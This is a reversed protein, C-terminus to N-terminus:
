ENPRMKFFKFWKMRNLGCSDNSDNVIQVSVDTRDTSVQNNLFSTGQVLLAGAATHYLAGGAQWAVNGHFLCDIIEASGSGTFAAATGKAAIDRAAPPQHADKM